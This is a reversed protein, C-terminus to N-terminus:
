PVCLCLLVQEELGFLRTGGAMPELQMSEHLRATLSAFKPMVRAMLSLFVRISFLVLLYISKNNETTLIFPGGVRLM